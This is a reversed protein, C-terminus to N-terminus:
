IFDIFIPTGLGSSMSSLDVNYEPEKLIDVLIEAESNPCAGNTGLCHSSAGDLSQLKNPQDHPCIFLKLYLPNPQPSVEGIQGDIMAYDSNEGNIRAM